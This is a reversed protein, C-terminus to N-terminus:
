KCISKIPHYMINFQTNTSGSVLMYCCVIDLYSISPASFLPVEYKFSCGWHNLLHNRGNTPLPFFYIYSWSCIIDSWLHLTLPYWWSTGVRKRNWHQYWAYTTTMSHVVSKAFDALKSAKPWTHPYLVEVNLHLNMRDFDQDAGEVPFTGVLVCWKYSIKLWCSVASYCITLNYCHIKRRNKM